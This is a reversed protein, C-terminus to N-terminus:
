QDQNSKIRVIREIFVGVLAIGALGAILYEGYPKNLIPLVLKDVAFIVTGTVGGGVLAGTKSVQKKENEPM